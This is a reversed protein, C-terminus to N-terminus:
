AEVGDQGPAYEVAAEMIKLLQRRQGPSADRYITMIRDEGPAPQDRGDESTESGMGYFWGLPKKYLSALLNLVPASPLVKGSEYRAITNPQVGVREAVAKQTLGAEKRAQRLAESLGSHAVEIKNPVTM